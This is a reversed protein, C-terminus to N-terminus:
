IFVRCTIDSKEVESLFYIEKFNEVIKDYYKKDCIIILGIGMNFVNIAERKDVYKLIKIISECQIRPLKIRVGLGKNIIRSLNRPIGGGTIHAIGKIMVKLEKLRKIEKYYIKTRNLLNKIEKINFDKKREELIKRILSFGNSHFGNSKFGLAIDGEIITEPKVLEDKECVGVCFGALEFSDPKVLGPMEATEGGALICESEVCASTIGKILRKILVSDIKNMGIYDLFMLPMAGTTLIDNINMAVVDWGATEILDYDKLLKLKTGVGDCTAVMVPNKYGKLVYCSSFFGFKNLLKKTIETKKQLVAIEGVIKEATDINVGAQKYTFM